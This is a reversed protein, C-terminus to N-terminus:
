FRGTRNQGMRKWLEKAEYYADAITFPFIDKQCESCKRPDASLKECNSCPTATEWDRLDRPDRVGNRPYAIQFTFGRRLAATVQWGWESRWRMPKRAKVDVQSPAVTGDDSVYTVLFDARTQPARRKRVGNEKLHHLPAIIDYLPTAEFWPPYTVSNREEGMKVIEYDMFFAQRKLCAHYFLVELLYGELRKPEFERVDKFDDQIQKWENLLRDHANDLASVFEDYDLYNINQTLERLKNFLRRKVYDAIEWYRESLTM